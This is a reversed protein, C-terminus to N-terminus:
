IESTYVPVPSISPFLFPSLSLNPLLPNWPFIKSCNTYLGHSVVTIVLLSILKVLVPYTNCQVSESEVRGKLFLLFKEILSKLFLTLFKCFLDLIDFFICFFWRAAIDELFGLLSIEIWRWIRLSYNSTVAEFHRLNVQFWSTQM